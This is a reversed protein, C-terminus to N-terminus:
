LYEGWTVGYYLGNLQGQFHGLEKVLGSEKSKLWAHTPGINWVQQHNENFVVDDVMVLKAIKKGNKLDAMAIDFDHGGDIFILDTTLKETKIIEPLKVTSDGIILRHKRPYQEDIFEKAFHIYDHVGVDLSIVVMGAELFFTSSHGANFGIEFITRVNYDSLVKKIAPYVDPVQGTHGEVQSIGNGKLHKALAKHKNKLM